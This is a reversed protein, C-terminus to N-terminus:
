YVAQKLKTSAEELFDSGAKLSELDNSENYDIYGACASNILNGVLKFTGDNTSSDMQSIQNVLVLLNSTNTQVAKIQDYYSKKTSETKQLNYGIDRLVPITKNYAASVIAYLLRSRKLVANYDFDVGRVNMTKIISAAEVFRQTNAYLLVLREYARYDGPYNIIIDNYKKIADSPKGARWLNDAETLLNSVLSMDKGGESEGAPNIVIVRNEENLVSPGAPPRVRSEYKTKLDMIDNGRYGMNIATYYSDLAEKYMQKRFYADSLKIRLDANDPELDIAKTVYRIAEGAKNEKILIDAGSSLQKVTLGSLDNEEYKDKNEEVSTKVEENKSFGSSQGFIENFAQLVVSSCVTHVNNNYQINDDSNIRASSVSSTIKDNKLNYVNLNIGLKEAGKEKTVESLMVYDFGLVKAVKIKSNVPANTAIDSIELKEKKVALVVSALEPNYIISEMKGSRDVYYKITRAVLMSDSEDSGPGMASDYILCKPLDEACLFVSIGLCFIVLFVINILKMICM